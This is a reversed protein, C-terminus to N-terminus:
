IANKLKDETELVTVEPIFLIWKGGRAIFDKEKAFIEEAHNWAFLVAYDPKDNKFEEYPKIPIHM